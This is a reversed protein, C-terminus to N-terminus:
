IGARRQRDTEDISPDSARLHLRLATAHRVVHGSINWARTISGNMLLYFALLGIEEVRAIDPHDFLIRHDLGLARARAFYLLHSEPGSSYNPKTIQLWKARPSNIMTHLYKERNVFEFAGQISHFCAEALIVAAEFSPRDYPDVHDEDIELLNIDDM